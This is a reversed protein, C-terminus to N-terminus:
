EPADGAPGELGLDVLQERVGRMFDDGPDIKVTRYSPDLERFYPHGEMRRYEHHGILHTISHHAVLFRVLAVNAAVQEATLPQTEGGGVNEVGIAVHNLGIVHRAFRTEPLFRHITGDRDVAFHASVNLSSARNLAARDGGLRSSAFTNWTSRLTGPGTWHLVIVKPDIDIGPDQEGLHERIYARTLESREENWPLPTEVIPLEIPPPSAEEVGDAERRPSTARVESDVSETAPADEAAAASVSPTPREGACALALLVSFVGLRAAFIVRLGGQEM